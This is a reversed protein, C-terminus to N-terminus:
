IRETPVAATEEPIITEAAAGTERPPDEGATEQGPSVTEKGETTGAETERAASGPEGATQAATQEATPADGTASPASPAGGCAALQFLATVAVGLWLMRLAATKGM